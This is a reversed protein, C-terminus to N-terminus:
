LREEKCNQSAIVRAKILAKKFTSKPYQKFKDENNKLSKGIIGHITKIDYAISIKTILEKAESKFHGGINLRINYQNLYAEFPKIIALRISNHMRIHPKVLVSLDTNLQLTLTDLLNPTYRFKPNQIGILQNVCCIADTNYAKFHSHDLVPYTVIFLDTNEADFDPILSKMFGLKDIWIPTCHLGILIFIESVFNLTGLKQYTKALGYSEGLNGTIPEIAIIKCIRRPMVKVKELEKALAFCSIAGRSFGILILKEYEVNLSLDFHVKIEQESIRNYIAFSFKGDSKNKTFCQALQTAQGTIDPFLGKRSIIGDGKDCGIVTVVDIEEIKVDLASTLKNDGTGKFEIILTKKM